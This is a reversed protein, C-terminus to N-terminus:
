LRLSAVADPSFEVRQALAQRVEAASLRWGAAAGAGALEAAEEVSELGLVTATQGLRAFKDRV